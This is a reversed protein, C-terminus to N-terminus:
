SALRYWVSDAGGRSGQDGDDPLTFGGGNPNRSESEDQWRSREGPTRNLRGDPVRRGSAGSRARLAMTASLRILTGSYRGDRGLHITASGPADNVPLSALRHRDTRM